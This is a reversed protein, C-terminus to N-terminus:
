IKRSAVFDAVESLLERAEGEPFASLAAKAQSVYSFLMESAYEMGGNEAVFARILGINDPEADVRCVMARIRQEQAEGANRLAGLLPLTIKKEALDHGVPKGLDPSAEYDLMDDRIQFAMGLCRGYELAAAVMEEPAEAAIAGSVCSAEFLSATKSYIIRLYDEQTTDGSFAKELQLLEGEALDSLTKAFVRILRESYCDAGLVLNIAKVLWFDGLLVSANPGLISATTPLGRRESSADAVDDHLLTANHLLEAAAAYRCAREGAPGHLFSRATLLAVGPRMLKGQHSLIRANAENLLGIDSRLSEDIFRRVLGADTGLFTRLRVLLDM